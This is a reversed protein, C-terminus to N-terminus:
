VTYFTPLPSDNNKSDYLAYAMVWDSQPFAYHMGAKSKDAVLGGEIAFCDGVRPMTFCMVGWKHTHGIHINCGLLRGIKLAHRAPFMSGGRIEHGHMFRVRKNCGTKTIVPTKGADEIWKINLEKLELFRPLSVGILRMVPMRGQVTRDWRDEHNGKIYIIECKDGARKRVGELYKRVSELEVELKDMWRPDQRHVTLSHLDAVDGLFIIKDPKKKKILEHLKKEAQVSHFPCHVDPIILSRM